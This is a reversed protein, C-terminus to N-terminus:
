NKLNVEGGGGKFPPLPPDSSHKDVAKLKEKHVFKKFAILCGNRLPTFGMLTMVIKKKELGSLFM